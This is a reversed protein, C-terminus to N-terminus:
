IEFSSYVMVKAIQMSFLLFQNWKTRIPTRWLVEYGFNQIKSIEQLIIRLFEQFYDSIAM